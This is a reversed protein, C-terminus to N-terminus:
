RGYHYEGNSDEFEYWVDGDEDVYEYGTHHCMEENGNVLFVKDYTIHDSKVRM